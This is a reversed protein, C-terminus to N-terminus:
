TPQEVSEPEPNLFRLLTEVDCDFTAAVTHMATTLDPAAGSALMCCAAQALMPPPLPVAGALAQSIWGATVAADM